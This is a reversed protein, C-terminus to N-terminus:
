RCFMMGALPRYRFALDQSVASIRKAGSSRFGLPSLACYGAVRDLMAKRISLRAQRAPRGARQPVDVVVRMVERAQEMKQWLYGDDLGRSFCARVVFREAHVIKTALYQYLDAERDCVSIVRCMGDGFRERLAQTAREWKFSEKEEYPRRRSREGREDFDRTWYRQEVLGLTHSTEADVLLVSHVLFGCAPTHAPAGIDGLEDCVSHRYSLSTTDELALVTRCGRAREVTAFFGAEAIQEPEVSPNRALRYAGEQAASTVSAGSLSAGFSDALDAAVKVLRRTRREDGLEASGFTKRAWVRSTVAAMNTM